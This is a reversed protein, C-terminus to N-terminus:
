IQALMKEESDEGAGLMECGVTEEVRELIKFLNYVTQFGVEQGRSMKGNEKYLFIM